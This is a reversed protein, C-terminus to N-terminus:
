ISRPHQRNTPDGSLVHLGAREIAAKVEETRIPKSVYDDMGAAMCQERDEKMANATMAVIYPRESPKFHKCIHRTAELGDMGPMQVDMFVLQFKQQELMELAEQGNSAVNAEYGFQLLVRTAVKQNILNDEVVLIQFPIRSALGRDFTKGPRLSKTITKVNGLATALANFLDAQKIPKM